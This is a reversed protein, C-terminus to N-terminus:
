KSFIRIETFHCNLFKREKQLCGVQLCGRSRGKMKGFENGAGSRRASSSNLYRWALFGLKACCKRKHKLLERFIRKACNFNLCCCEALSLSSRSRASRIWWAAACLVHIMCHYIWRASKNIFKRICIAASSERAPKTHLLSTLPPSAPTSRDFPLFLSVFQWLKRWVAM